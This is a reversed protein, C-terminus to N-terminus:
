GRVGAFRLLRQVTLSWTLNFQSQVNRSPQSTGEMNVEMKAEPKETHVSQSDTASRVQTLKQHNRSKRARRNSVSFFKAVSPQMRVARSKKTKQNNDRWRSTRSTGRPQPPVQMEVVSSVAPLPLTEGPSAERELRRTKERQLAAKRAKSPKPM